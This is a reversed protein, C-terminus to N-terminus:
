EDKMRGGEDKSERGEDKSEAGEDKNETWEGESVRANTVLLDLAKRNRLRTAISREGGDKTLAARV